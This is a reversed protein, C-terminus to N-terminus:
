WVGLPSSVFGNLIHLCMKKRFLDVHHQTFTLPLGSSIYDAYMIVFVGCDYSNEQTPLGRDYSILEWEDCDFEHGYISAENEMYRLAGVLYENGKIGMSDYYIIKKEQVFIVVLGWHSNNLNIPCFIKDKEFINFQKAWTEVNSYDYGNYLLLHLFYCSYFHSGRKKKKSSLKDDREQFMKMFFDIVEDNIWHNEYIKRLLDQTISIGFKKILVENTRKRLVNNIKIEDSPRMYKYKVATTNDTPAEYYNRRKRKKDFVLGSNMLYQRYINKDYNELVDNSEYVNMHVNESLIHLFEYYYIDVSKHYKVKLKDIEQLFYKKYEEPFGIFCNDVHQPITDMLTSFPACSDESVADFSERLAKNLNM